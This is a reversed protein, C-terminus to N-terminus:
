WIKMFNLLNYYLEEGYLITLVFSISFFPIMPVKAGKLNIKKTALLILSYLLAIMIGLWFMVLYQQWSILIGLGLLVLLDGIGFSKKILNLIIIMVFFMAPLILNAIDFAFLFYFLLTTALFAHVLDKYVAQEKIDFYSLIFLFIVVLWLYWPITYIFFFVFTAGLVLESLPYYLNVKEGCKPCKGKILLYGIIPILEWWTLIKGCNECHSGQKIIQPYKYGKELRYLTANLFSAVAAGLFFIWINLFTM